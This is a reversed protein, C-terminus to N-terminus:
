IRAFKQKTRKGNHIISYDETPVGDVLVMLVRSPIPDDEDLIVEVRRDPSQLLGRDVPILLAGFMKPRQGVNIRARNLDPHVKPLFSM